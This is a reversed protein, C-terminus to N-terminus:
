RESETKKTRRLLEKRGRVLRSQTAAVSAGTLEAIESLDHGLIDHLVLAEAHKPRMRALLQQLRVVSLRAEANREPGAEQGRVADISSGLQTFLRREAGRRRLFDLAVNAAVASSWAPLNSGSVLSRESLFRIIREFSAQMLDDIEGTQFRLLRRLTREVHAHVRDYLADAAWDDGRALAAIITDDTPLSVVPASRVARLQTPEFFRSRERVVAM